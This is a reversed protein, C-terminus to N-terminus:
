GGAPGSGPQEAVRRLKAQDFVVDVIAIRGNRVTFSAVGVPPRGPM